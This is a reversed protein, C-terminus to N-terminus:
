DRLDGLRDGLGFVRALVLVTVLLGLLLVPRWWAAAKTQEEEPVALSDAPGPPQM